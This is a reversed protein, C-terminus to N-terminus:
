NQQQADFDLCLFTLHKNTCAYAAPAGIAASKSAAVPLQRMQRRRVGRHHRQDAQALLSVFLDVPVNM